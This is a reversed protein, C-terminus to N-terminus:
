CYSLLGAGKNSKIVTSYSNNKQIQCIHYGACVVYVIHVNATQHPAVHEDSPVPSYKSTLYCLYVRSM